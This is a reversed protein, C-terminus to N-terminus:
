IAQASSSGIQLPRKNTTIIAKEARAEGRSGRNGERADERVGRARAGLVGGVTEATAVQGRGERGGAAGGHSRRARYGFGGSRRHAFPFLPPLRKITDCMIELNSTRGAHSDVLRCGTRSPPLIYSPAGIPASSTLNLCALHKTFPFQAAPSACGPLAAETLRKESRPCFSCSFKVQPRLVCCYMAAWSLSFFFFAILLQATDFVCFVLYM